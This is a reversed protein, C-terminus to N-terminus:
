LQSLPTGSGGNFSKQVGKIEKIEQIMDRVEGAKSKIDQKLLQCAQGGKTHVNAELQRLLEKDKLFLEIQGQLYSM